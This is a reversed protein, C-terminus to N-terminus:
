HPVYKILKIEEQHAGGIRVVHVPGVGPAYFKHEIKDPNLPDTDMTEVVRGYTGAPVRQTANVQVVRAMDEAVGPRYEQRYTPGGPTPKGPIIIGPLAGDVGAEWTGQTSVVAGNRYDKSDEGFYWVARSPDQAYWDTTNEELSGNVTVVDSVQVCKVGFITKTQRDVRVVVHEPVGDKTGDYTWTTGPRLPWYRNTILTSFRAPVIHPHYPPGSTHRRQIPIQPTTSTQHSPAGSSGCGTLALVLYVVIAVGAITAIATLINPLRRLM